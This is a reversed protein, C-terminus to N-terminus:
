IRENVPAEKGASPLTFRYGVNRVTGVIAEHEPGLKSRLRRIHVDVTRTGGFYDYGWIEQLLQARTFVRGPHQALFKILEFEKFTLDLSRGKIKATYSNEDIVIEGTRIERLSPDNAFNNAELRGVSIRIRAEIEAPGATDLIVDDFGWDSADSVVVDDTNDYTAQGDEILQTLEVKMTERNKDTFRIWLEDHLLDYYDVVSKDDLDFDLKPMKFIYSVKYTAVIVKKSNNQANEM